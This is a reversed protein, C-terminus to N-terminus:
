AKKMNNSGVINCLTSAVPVHASAKTPKYKTNSCLSAQRTIGRLDSEVDVFDQPNHPQTGKTRCQSSNVYKGAYTNYAFPGTSEGTRQKCHCADNNLGTLSGTNHSM